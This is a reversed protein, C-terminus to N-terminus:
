SGMFFTILIDILSMIGTGALATIILNKWYLGKDMPLNGVFKGTQGNMAFVYKEGEWSTNLIWVPLLAYSATSHHLRYNSQTEEVSNYGSVNNRLYAMVSNRIRKEARDKSDEATVDYKDALYGALYATQFDVAQSYDFPEISEMLDDPMQTSGDVPIKEFSMEGGRFLDYFSTETYTYESDSWVRVKTGRYRAEGEAEGDFLWFPVYVGKMEDIHNQDKFVKPLLAKDKIHNLYREKAQKRDLKFPIIYDPKLTGSLNGTFVVPNECYPCRLAATNSDTIIEGGCANCSYVKMKGEEAEGWESGADTDWVPEDAAISSGEELQALEEFVSIDFETDCYPCKAKQSRSDFVIAGGCNPCKYEKIQGM